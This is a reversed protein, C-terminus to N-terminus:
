HHQPAGSDFVVAIKNALAEDVQEIGTPSFLVEAQLEEMAFGREYHVLVKIWNLIASPLANAGEPGFYNGDLRM